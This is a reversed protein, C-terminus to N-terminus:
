HVWYGLRCSKGASARELLFHAADLCGVLSAMHKSVELAKVYHLRPLVGFRMCPCRRQQLPHRRRLGFGFLVYHARLAQFQM